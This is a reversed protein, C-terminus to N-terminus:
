GYVLRLIKGERALQGCHVNTEIGDTAGDIRIVPKDMFLAGYAGTVLLSRVSFSPMLQLM